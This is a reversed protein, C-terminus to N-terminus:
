RAAAVIDEALVHAICHYGLDNLHLRDRYLVSQMPLSGSRDWARMIDFRPFVPVGGARAAAAIGAQMQSYGERDLIAPAYQVDMLVVDAGAARLRSIGQEIVTEVAGANEGDLVDNSGVQWIVLDPRAAIADHDMRALMAATTDGGVGRNLVQVDIGTLYGALEVRLRSPYSNSPHSAGTGQTSSSGLAVITVPGGRAIRAAVRPLRALQHAVGPPVACVGPDGGTPDSSCSALLAVIVLGLAAASRPRRNM